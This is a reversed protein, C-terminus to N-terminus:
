SETDLIEISCGDPLAERLRREADAADGADVSVEVRDITPPESPTGSAQTEGAGVDRNVVVGVRAERLRTDVEDLDPGTIAARLHPM